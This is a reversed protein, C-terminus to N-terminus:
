AKPASAPSRNERSRATAAAAARGTLTRMARAPDSRHAGAIAAGAVTRAHVAGSLQAPRHTAAAAHGSTRQGSALRTWGNDRHAKADSSQGLRSFELWSFGLWFIEERLLLSASRRSACWRAADFAIRRADKRREGKRFFRPRRSRMSRAREGKPAGGRCGLNPGRSPEPRAEQFWRICVPPGEGAGTCRAGRPGVRAPRSSAWAARSRLTHSRGRSGSGSRRL